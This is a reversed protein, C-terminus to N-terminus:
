GLGICETCINVAKTLVDSFGGFIAGLIISCLAICIITIKIILLTTSNMKPESNQKFNKVKVFNRKESISPVIFSFTLILVLCICIPIGIKTFSHAIIQRSYGNGSFYIDLAAYILCMAIILISITLIISCIRDFNLKNSKSM